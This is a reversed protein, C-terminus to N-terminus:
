SGAEGRVKMRWEDLLDLLTQELSYNPTLGMERHLLACDGKLEPIDLPRFRGPDVEVTIPVRSLSLLTDLIQQISIVNGSGLRMLRGRKGTFGAAAVYRAMDRVDSFDRRTSLNGVRIVPPATGAEIRAVQRAFNPAVFQPDQGPGTFNFARVPVVSLASRALFLSALMEMAAKSLAYPSRINLQPGEPTENLNLGAIEASSMILIRSQPVFQALAEMLHLSGMFNVEYTLQQHAWSFGVNTIAALHFVQDPKWEGILQFLHDRNRIDSQRIEIGPITIGSEDTIGFLRYQPDRNLLEVLHRGLFGTCGTILVRQM